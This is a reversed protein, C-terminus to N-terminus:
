VHFHAPHRASPIKEGGVEVLSFNMYGQLSHLPTLSVETQMITGKDVTSGAHM